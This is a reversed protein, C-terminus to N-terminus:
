FVLVLMGLEAFSDPSPAANASTSALDETSTHPVTTLKTSTSFILNKNYYRHKM